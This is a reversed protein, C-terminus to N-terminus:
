ALVLRDRGVTFGVVLQIVSSLGIASLNLSLWIFIRNKVGM